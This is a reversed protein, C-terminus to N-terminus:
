ILPKTISTDTFSKEYIHSPRVDLCYRGDKASSVDHIPPPPLTTGHMDSGALTWRFFTESDRLPDEIPYITPVTELISVM